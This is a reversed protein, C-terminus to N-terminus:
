KRVMESHVNKMNEVMDNMCKVMSTSKCEEAKKDVKCLLEVEVALIDSVHHEDNNM